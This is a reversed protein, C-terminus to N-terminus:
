VTSILEDKKGVFPIALAFFVMFGTEYRLSSNYFVLIVAVMSMVMAIQCHLLNGTNKKIQNRALFFCVIFFSLYMGLGVFGVELYLFASSFMTYHLDNYLKYFPTDLASISSTDCNGLGLGFLQELPETMITQSIKPIASLRNLDNATAYNSRTALDWLNELSLFDKFGFVAVLLNSFVTVLLAGMILLLLKRFSFSTLLTSAFLIIVFIVFYFKLEAFAAILLSIGCTLFCKLTSEELNMFQLVSRSIVICFFIIMYGNCGKQVGFIGGLFDQKYGLVFYQIGCVVANVWFLIDLAKFGTQVSEDNLFKTFLFFALYFRFDNRLGWFYYLPSQYKFLYVVFTYIVFVSVLVTLPMLKKSLVLPRKILVLFALALLILDVGYKIGQPLGLFESLFALSFPMIVIIWTAWETFPRKKLKINTLNINGM